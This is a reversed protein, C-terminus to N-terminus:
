SADASSLRQAPSAQTVGFMFDRERAGAGLTPLLGLM